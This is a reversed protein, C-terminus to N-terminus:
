AGKKRRNPFPLPNEGAGNEGWNPFSELFRDLEELLFMRRGNVDKATIRAEDCYRKLTDPDMGVYRAAEGMSFFRQNPVQILAIPKGIMPTFSVRFPQIHGTAAPFIPWFLFVV